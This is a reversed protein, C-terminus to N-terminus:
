MFMTLQHLERSLAVHQSLSLITATQEPRTKHVLPKHLLEFIQYELLKEMM